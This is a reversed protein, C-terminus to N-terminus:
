LSINAAFRMDHQNIVAEVVKNMMMNMDMAVQPRVLWLGYVMFAIWPVLSMVSPM